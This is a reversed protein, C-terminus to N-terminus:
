KKLLEIFQERSMLLQKMIGHVTGTRLDKNHIPITVRRGDVHVLQCHSGEQSRVTFGIKLLCKLLSRPKVSPLKPM